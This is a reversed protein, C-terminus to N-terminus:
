TTWGFQEVVADYLDEIAIRVNKIHPRIAAIKAVIEDDAPTKTVDVAEEAALTAADGLAVWWGLHGPEPKQLLEQVDQLAAVAEPIESTEILHWLDMLDRL